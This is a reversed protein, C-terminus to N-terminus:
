KINPALGTIFNTALEPNKIFKMILAQYAATEAFEEAYRGNAKEFRRGDESKFGYSRLIIDEFLSMIVYPDKEKEAKEIKKKLGGPISADFRMLESETLNFYATETQEEGNFDVYTIKETIM